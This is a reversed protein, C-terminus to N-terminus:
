ARTENKVRIEMINLRTKIFDAGEGKHIGSQKAIDAFQDETILIESPLPQIIFQQTAKVRNEIERLLPLSKLKCDTMDLLIM